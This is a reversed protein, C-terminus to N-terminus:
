HPTRKSVLAEGNNTSKLNAGDPFNQQVPEAIILTGALIKNLMGQMDLSQNYTTQARESAQFATETETDQITKLRQLFMGVCQLAGFLNVGSLQRFLGRVIDENTRPPPPAYNKLREAHMKDYEVTWEEIKNDILRQIQDPLPDGPVWVVANVPILQRVRKVKAPKQEKAQKM